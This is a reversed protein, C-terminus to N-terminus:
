GPEHPLGSLSHQMCWCNAYYFFLNSLPIIFKVAKYLTGLPGNGMRTYTDIM